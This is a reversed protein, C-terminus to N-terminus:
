VRSQVGGSQHLWPREDPPRRAHDHISRAARWAFRGDLRENLFGVRGEGLGAPLRARAEVHRRVEGPVEVTEGLEQGQGPEQGQDDAPDADGIRRLAEDLSLPRRERDQLRDPRAPRADDRQPQDFEGDDREGSRKGPGCDADRDWEGDVPQKGVDDGKRQSRRDVRALNQESDGVPKQGRQGERKRREPPRM